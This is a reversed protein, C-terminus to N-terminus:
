GMWVFIIVAIAIGLIAGAVTEMPKHIEGEIRSEAVLFALGFSLAAIFGNMSIFTISAAMCFALASHGSVAGGQFYSGGNDKWKYLKLGVTLILVVAVAVMTLHPGSNKIRVLVVDSFSIIRDFFLLYGTVAANIGALLVAGASVDKVLKAMPHYGQTVMDVTREIATNFLEAVIVFTVAFFLAIFEIRSLNFFLSFVIVGLAAAYHFKMNRESHIASIIGQVAYNFSKIFNGRKM